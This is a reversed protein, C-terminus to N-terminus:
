NDIRKLDRLLREFAQQYETPETWRTFDGIHRRRVKAAWPQLTQMVSEDLRVPFLVERQQRQEKELATEVEDEVWDSSIAHESLILLLKDQVHIERNIRDRIKEGIKMDHPAFCCRVGHDQLDAHLRKALTEDHHSYSIFCSYYQIPHMMQTCYLDIWEDSVGAGRLFHLASGDQPLQVTQLEIRSPSQHNIEALGKVQRLDMRAFTTDSIIAGRLNSGTLDAYSLNASFLKIGSLDTDILIAHSLEAESLEAGRLDADILIADSLIAHSLDTGRLDAHSMEVHNMEAHIMEVHSLDAYSMRANSLDSEILSANCLKADNLDANSLNVNGLKARRLNIGHLKANSLDLPWVEMHQKRRSNGTESGQRLIKMLEPDAM